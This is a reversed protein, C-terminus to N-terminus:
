KQIRGLLEKVSERYKEPVKDVSDAKVSTMGDNVSIQSVVPKGNADLSGTINIRVGDKISMISVAGNNITISMANAGPVNAFPFPPINLDVNIGPFVGGAPGAEAKLEPLKVGKITEKKGKRLIVIDFVSDAKTENVLKAFDAPERSVPKGAFELIIDNAKIGAKAAVSDAKVEDVVLGQDKPLDLQEALVENPKSIFAGFRSRGLIVGARPAVNMGRRPMMRRIEEMKDEIMKRVEDPLGQFADPPIPPPVAKPADKKAPPPDDAIAVLTTRRGLGTLLIALAFFGAATIRAVHRPCCRELRSSNNLLMTIRRFLDSTSGLAATAGAVIRPRVRGVTRSLELLFAAYDEAQPAETAAVADALFEQCLDLQHRLWWFWPLPHYVARALSVWIGNWVDGNHIHAIEHALVWRLEGAPVGNAMSEPLLITPRWIGGCVPVALRSSIRVRVRDGCGLDVALKVVTDTAPRSHRTLRMMAMLGLLWRIGFFGVGIVYAWVIADLVSLRLRAVTVAPEIPMPTLSESHSPAVLVDGAGPFPTEDLADTASVSPSAVALRPETEPSAASAPSAALNTNTIAPPILTEPLPLWSPGLTLLPAILSAMVAWQGLQRRRAPQRVVVCLASAVLLILGGAILGHLLGPLVRETM